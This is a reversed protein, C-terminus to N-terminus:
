QPIGSLPVAVLMSKLKAGPLFGTITEILVIVRTDTKIVIADPLTRTVDKRLRGMADKLILPDQQVIEYVPITGDAAFKEPTFPIRIPNMLNYFTIILLGGFSIGITWGILTSKKM